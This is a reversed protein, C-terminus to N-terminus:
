APIQVVNTAELADVDSFAAKRMAAIKEAHSIDSAAIQEALRRLSANLLKESTITQFKEIEFDLKAKDQAITERNQRLKEASHDGSRVKQLLEALNAMADLRKEKDEEQSMAELEELIEGALIAAGGESIHQGSRAIQLAFQARERALELQQRRNLWDQYGGTFWDSFNQDNILWNDGFRERLRQEVEPLGNLWAIIERGTAGGQKRRNVGERLDVPLSAIKGTRAAM